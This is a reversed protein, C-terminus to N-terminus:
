KGVAQRLRALAIQYDFIAQYLAARQNLLTTQADTVETIPAEGARYRLTSVEVVKEAKAITEGILRIRERASTAQLVAARFNQALMREAFIKSQEAIQARLEAQTQRSRSAGFDLLPISVGVTARAGTTQYISKPALSDSIFGGDVAYTIQPRREARAIKVDESAAKQEAILQAIEPRTEALNATLREVEAADPVGTLLDSVNFQRAADYGVFARLVDAAQAETLQAQSLEDRRAGTQIEARISDVPAVEGGAVLIRTLNEFEGAIRLNEDAARRRATALALNLYAEDAQEVLARRATETGSRAAELLSQNRRVTARLRGSTDLEGSLTVLGQIENVANAGLFSPNGPTGANPSNSSFSPSTFIYSPNLTLRPRLAARAQRIDEAALRENIQAQNYTSIQALTLGVAEDRTLTPPPSTQAPQGIQVTSNQAFFNQPAGIAFILAGCLARCIFQYSRM